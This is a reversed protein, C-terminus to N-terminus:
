FTVGIQLVSRRLILDRKNIYNYYYDFDPRDYNYKIHQSIFGISINFDLKESENFAVGFTPNAYFGGKAFDNLKAIGYGSQLQLYPSVAKKNLFYKAEAFVPIVNIRTYYDGYSQIGLGAGLAFRPTIYRGFAGTVTGGINEKATIIGTSIQYYNKHTREYILRASKSCDYCKQKITKINSREVKLQHGGLIEIIVAADDIQKIKGVFESGDKTKVIDTYNIPAVDNQAITYFYGFLIFIIINLKNMKM